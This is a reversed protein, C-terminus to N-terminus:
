KLRVVVYQQADNRQILLPIIKGAEAVARKLESVTTVQLNGVALILDGQRIGAKAAAGSAGQVVLGGDVGLRQAERGNLPRVALGLSGGPAAQNDSDGITAVSDNMEALKVSLTRASKNRWIKVKVTDGPHRGGIARQLDAAESINSGDVALIIDGNKLGAKEAPGGPEVSSVLAGAPKELGFSQALDKNVDQIMVGLKGRSVKGYKQLQDKVKMAVDIPIAFSIGMYGGSKSYIQSNIGIVEGSLNILPGGSNGPNVAVDTQIFPVYTEDPLQRSKASIIGATVTNELGFPSGMALVWQGPKSNAPNGIRVTPLDKANIKILAVDTRKDTGIVKAKFERKDTLKVTVDTAGQVVHTNTLIYGDPSVIFGSGIGEQIQQQPELEQGQGPQGQGPVPMGFRRFFEYFPDNQAGYAGVNVKEVSTVRINVVAPGVSDVLPSFDPLAVRAPATVASATTNSIGSAYSSSIGSKQLCGTFTAVAVGCVLTTRVLSWPM